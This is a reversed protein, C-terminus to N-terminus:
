EKEARAMPVVALTMGLPRLLKLITILRPNKEAKLAQVLKVAEFQDVVRKEKALLIQRMIQTKIEIVENSISDVGMCGESGEHDNAM